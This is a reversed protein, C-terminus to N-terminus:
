LPRDNVIQKAEDWLGVLVDLNSTRLDIARQAALQEVSEFRSRFKDSAARLALEADIGLHRAVNVVAFLLDGLEDTVADNDGQEVADNLEDTEEVIKPFAGNVDPWDFGVKSAKRGIKQAYALSPLSRPIGDFVSTRNKEVRKIEDWNTLVTETDGANAM